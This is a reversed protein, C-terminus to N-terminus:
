IQAEPSRVHEPRVGVALVRAIRDQLWPSGSVVRLMLPAKPETERGTVIPAFLHNQLIVQIAQTVRTPFMRREKVLKLDSDTLCKRALREALLNAAAVADQIALNIGVGGIPSMAHAADGIMVLGPRSWEELRDVKVTLLKVDDWSRVDDIRPGLHPATAVVGKKFADLGAARVRPAADKPMVSACQWYDGRNITVVLHGPGVHALATDPGAGQRGVRFWLVDIPSGLDRVPLRSRERVVSHRGDAGVTLHARIEMPGDPTMARVGEVRGGASLVDVAETNMRMSFAPLRKAEDALFDLFDWQRMFAIFKYHTPLNDFRAIRYTKDGFVVVPDRFPQHGRKLLRDALGLERMVELTSPHVTDGRFDRLFDGHKELVVTKVGARALLYGAMM